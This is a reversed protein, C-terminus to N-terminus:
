WCLDASRSAKIRTATTEGLVPQLHCKQVNFIIVFSVWHAGNTTRARSPFFLLGKFKFSPRKHTCKNTNTHTFSLYIWFSVNIDYFHIYLIIFTGKKPNMSINLYISSNFYSSFLFQQRNLSNFIKIPFLAKSKMDFNWLKMAVSTNLNVTSANKLSIYVCYWSIKMSKKSWNNIKTLDLCCHVKLRSKKRM